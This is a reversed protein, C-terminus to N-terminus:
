LGTAGGEGWWHINSLRSSFHLTQMHLAGYQQSHLRIQQGGKILSSVQEQEWLKFLRCLCAGYDKSILLGFQSDFRSTPLKLVCM